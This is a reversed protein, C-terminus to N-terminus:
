PILKKTLVRNSARKGVVHRGATPAMVSFVLKGAPSTAFNIMENATKGVKLQRNAFERGRELRSPQHVLQSYQRELNMRSILVQMEGNSLSAVGSTRAKVSIAHAKQSDSLEENKSHDTSSSESSSLSSKSGGRSFIRQGWKMGRRGYHELFANVRLQDSHRVTTVSVNPPSATGGLDHVRSPDLQARPNFRFHGTSGSRKARRLNRYAEISYQTELTHPNAGHFPVARVGVSDEVNKANPRVYMEVVKTGSPSVGVWSKKAAENVIAAGQKEAETLLERNAFMDEINDYHNAAALRQLMDELDGQVEKSVSDMADELTALWEKDLADLMNRRQDLKSFKGGKDRKVMSEDFKGGGSRNTDIAAPKAIHAFFGEVREIREAHTMNKMMSDPMEENLKAYLRMLATHAAALQDTSAHVGGRAGALAAAAAHVGARSLVGAPTRVPLKCQAKSTPAGQHEHVLCARHWQEISYDSEKYDSWPTESIGDAM